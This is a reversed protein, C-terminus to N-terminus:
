VYDEYIEAMQQILDDNLRILHATENGNFPLLNELPAWSYDQTEGEQLQIADKEISTICYFIKELCAVREKVIMKSLPYIVEAVIGTEENLERIAAEEFDEGKIVSGGASLEYKLPHALKEVSRQMLLFDGDEHQVIVRVIKHYAGAPVVEGRVHDRGLSSGQRDYLDFLEM